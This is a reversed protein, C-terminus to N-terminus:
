PVFPTTIPSNRQKLQLGVSISNESSSRSMRPIFYQPAKRYPFMSNICFLILRRHGGIQEVALALSFEHEKRNQHQRLTVFRGGM